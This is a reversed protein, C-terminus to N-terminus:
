FCIEYRSSIWFYGGKKSVLFNVRLKLVWLLEIRFLQLKQLWMSQLFHKKFIEALSPQIERPIESWEDVLIMLFRLDLENLIEDLANTIHLISVHGRRGTQKNEKVTGSASLKASPSKSINVDGSLTKM